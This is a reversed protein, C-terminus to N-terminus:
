RILVLTGSSADKVELLVRKGAADVSVTGQLGTPANVTWVPNVPADGSTYTFLTYIGKAPSGSGLWEVNLTPAAAGFALYDCQVWDNTTANYQFNYTAGTTDTGFILREIRFVKADQPGAVKVTNTLGTDFPSLSNTVTLWYSGTVIGGKGRFDNPM